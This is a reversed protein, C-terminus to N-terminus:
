SRNANKLWIVYDLRDCTEPEVNLHGMLAAMLQWLFAGKVAIAEILSDQVGQIGGSQGHIILEPLMRCKDDYWEGIQKYLVTAVQNVELSGHNHDETLEHILSSISAFQLNKDGAEQLWAKRVGLGHMIALECLSIAELCQKNHMANQISTSMRGYVAQLTTREVDEQSHVLYLRKKQKGM